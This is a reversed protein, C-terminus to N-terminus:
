HADIYADLEAHWLAVDTTGRLTEEGFILDVMYRPRKGGNFIAKACSVCYVIVEDRPLTATKKRMAAVVRDAPIEGWFSDGCCTSRERTQRPEVLSINMRAIVARLADHIAPQERTPCADLITMESGGYDPLPFRPDEAIVEWVSRTTCSPYNERYRRDCGPCVNIVEAGDPFPPFHRCCALSETAGVGDSLYDLLRQALRPKYLTLACGPAFLTTM